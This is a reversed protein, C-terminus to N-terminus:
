GRSDLDQDDNEGEMFLKPIRVTVHFGQEVKSDVSVGYEKGYLLVLREHINFLGIGTAKHKDINVSKDGSGEGNDVISIEIGEDYETCRLVIMGEKRNSFGHFLSNEILPQLCFKPIHLAKLDDPLFFYFDVKDDFRINVIDVYNQLFEMEESLTHTEEETHYLSYLFSGLKRLCDAVAEDGNLRAKWQIANLTNFLFHPRLQAQLSNYYAKEKAKTEDEVKVLLSQIRGQAQVFSKDLEEVETIYSDELPLATEAREIAGMRDRLSAIPRSINGAIALGSLLLGLFTVVFALIFGLMAKSSLAFLADKSGQYQLTANFQEIYLSQSYDYASIGGYTSALAEGRGDLLLLRGSIYSSDSINSWLTDLSLPYLVYCSSSLKFWGIDRIEYFTGDPAGQLPEPLNGSTLFSSSAGGAWTETFTDTALYLRGNYLMASEASGGYQRSANLRQVEKNVAKEAKFVQYPHASPDTITRLTSLLDDDLILSATSYNINELEAKFNDSIIAFLSDLYRETDLRMQHLFLGSVIFYVISFPLLLYLSIMRTLKTKLREM